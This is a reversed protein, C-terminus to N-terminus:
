LGSIIPNENCKTLNSKCKEKLRIRGFDLLFLMFNGLQLVTESLVNQIM